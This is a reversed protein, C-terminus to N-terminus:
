KVSVVKVYVVALSFKLVEVEGIRSSFEFKLNEVM